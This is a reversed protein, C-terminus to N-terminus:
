DPYYIRLLDEGINMEESPDLALLPARVGKGFKKPSTFIRIEDFLNENLFSQLLKAGGEVLVSSINRKHLQKMISPLLRHEFPVKVYELVGKYDVHDKRPGTYDAQYIEETFIILKSGSSSDFVKHGGLELRRDLIIKTPNKGEVHRVTLAPDDAKVTNTGVMIAQEHSRWIHSLWHADEGSVLNEERKEPVPLRSIFGDSTQAWKLIIYPREKEHFTIFRKNLKRSEDELVGTVVNIGADRLKAIGRGAVMPNPDLCGIVVEKIQNEVILDACPPTKGYHSCPELNVYLTSNKLREKYDPFKKKVDNIANVEAHPKGFEEHYGEGIIEGNYVVVCGVMPNPAVYGIGKEALALCKELFHKHNRM